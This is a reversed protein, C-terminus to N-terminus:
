FRRHSSHHARSEELGLRPTWLPKQPVVKEPVEKGCCSYKTGGAKGDKQRATSGIVLADFAITSLIADVSQLGLDGREVVLYARGPLPLEGSEHPPDDVITRARRRILRLTADAAGAHRRVSPRHDCAATSRPGPRAPRRRRRGM